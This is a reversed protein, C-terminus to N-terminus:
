KAVIIKGHYKVENGAVDKIVLYYIGTPLQPNVTFGYQGNLLTKHQQVLNGNVDILQLLASFSKQQLNLITMQDKVPNPYVSFGTLPKDCRSITVVSSYSIQGDPKVQKIRYFRQGTTVQRSTDTYFYNVAPSTINMMGIHEFSVGDASREIVFQGSNTEEAVAWKLQVNCNGDTQAKWQLWRMPLVVTECITNGGYDTTHLSGDPWWFKGDDAIPTYYSGPAVHWKNCKWTNNTNSWGYLPGWDPKLDTGFTNGAFTVNQNRDGYAGINVTYGFGSFYNNTVTVNNYGRQNGDQLALGNTNGISVITNHDFVMYGLGGWNELIADTHDINGDHRADHFWSNKVVFPKAQTSFDFQIGNGWGWFDCHDITINGEYRQDLGYQYGQAYSVPPTNVRNPEFSCYDFSINDGYVAVNADAISNSAFRCGIFSVNVPHSSSSGIYCGDDFNVYRYTQNSQITGSFRTLAGPYGPANRYGTNSANPWSIAQSFAVDGSLFIILICGTIRKTKM